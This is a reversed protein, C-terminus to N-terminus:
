RENCNIYKTLSVPDQTKFPQKLTVKVSAIAPVTKDNECQQNKVGQRSLEARM